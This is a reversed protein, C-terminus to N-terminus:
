EIPNSVCMHSLSVPQPSIFAVEDSGRHMEGSRDSHRHTRIRTRFKKDLSHRGVAPEFRVTLRPVGSMERSRIWPLVTM